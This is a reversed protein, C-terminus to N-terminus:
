GNPLAREDLDEQEVITVGDPGKCWSWPRIMAARVDNITPEWITPHESFRIGQKKLENMIWLPFACLPVNPPLKRLDFVARM